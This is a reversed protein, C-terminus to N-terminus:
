SCVWRSHCGRVATNKVDGNSFTCGEEDGSRNLPSLVEECFKAGESLIAERLDPTVRECGTLREYHADVNLLEDLVFRMDRQPAKYQTM